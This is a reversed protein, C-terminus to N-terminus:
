KEGKGKKTTNKALQANYAQTLIKKIKSHVEPTDETFIYRASYFGNIKQDPILEEIDVGRVNLFVHHRPYNMSAFMKGGAKFVKKNMDKSGNGSTRQVFTGGLEEVIDIIYKQLAESEFVPKKVKSKGNKRTKTENKKVEKETVEVAVAVSDLQAQNEVMEELSYQNNKNLEKTIAQSAAVYTSAEEVVAEQETPEVDKWWRKVTSSSLNTTSGDDEYTLEYTVVVGGKEYTDTVQAIRGNQKNQIRRM